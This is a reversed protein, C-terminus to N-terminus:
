TDTAELDEPPLYHEGNPITPTIPKTPNPTVVPTVTPSQEPTNTPPEATPTPQQQPADTADVFAPGTTATQTGTLPECEATFNDFVVEVTKNAEFIKHHSWARLHVKTEGTWGEGLSKPPEWDSQSRRVYATMESGSRELRLRGFEGEEGGVVETLGPGTVFWGETYDPSDPNASKDIM